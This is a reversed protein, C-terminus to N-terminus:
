GSRADRRMQESQGFTWRTPANSEGDAPFGFAKVPALEWVQFPSGGSTPAAFPAQLEDDVVATPWGRAQFADSARGMEDRERVWRGIAEIVIHADGTDAALVCRGTETLHRAKVAKANTAIYCRVGDWAAFVPVVHPIGDRSTTTLWTLHHGSRLEERISDWDFPVTAGQETAAAAGVGARSM